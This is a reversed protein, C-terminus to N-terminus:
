PTTATYTVTGTYTGVPYAAANDYLYSWTETPYSTVKNNGSTPSPMTADPAGGTNSLTPNAFAANSESVLIESYPINELPDGNNLGDGGGDNTPTITILGANSFISVTVTGNTTATVDGGNGVDAAAPEFLVEDVTGTTDTGVRFRMIGPIVVRFDLDVAVSPSGTTSSGSDALSTVPGMGITAVILGIISQKNLHKM